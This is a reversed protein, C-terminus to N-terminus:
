KVFRELEYLVLKTKESFIHTRVNTCPYTRIPQTRMYTQEAVYTSSLRVGTHAGAYPRMYGYTYAGACTETHTHVRKSKRAYGHRLLTM